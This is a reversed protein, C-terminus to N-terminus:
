EIYDELLEEILTHHIRIHTELSSVAHFKKACVQCSLPTYEPHTKFHAIVNKYNPFKKDCFKCKIYKDAQHIRLHNQYVRKTRFQKRCTSCEFIQNKLHTNEHARLNSVTAFSKSCNANSCHYPRDGTHFRLHTNLDFQTLAKKGCVKCEFPKNGTHTRLHIELLSPATFVRECVHCRNPNNPDHLKLHQKYPAASSYPKGCEFCKISGTKRRNSMTKYSPEIHAFTIHYRLTGKTKFMLGCNSCQWESNNITKNHKKTIEENSKSKTIFDEIENDSDESKASVDYLAVSENVEYDIYDDIDEGKGLFEEDKVFINDDNTIQSKIYAEDYIEKSLLLETEKEKDQLNIDLTIQYKEYDISANQTEISVKRLLTDAEWCQKHFTYASNLKFM